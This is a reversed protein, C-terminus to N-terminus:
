HCEPGSPGLGCPFLPYQQRAHLVNVIEIHDANVRYVVVCNPHAVLEWTGPVRGPRFLYPHEALPQVAAEILGPAPAGGRIAARSTVFSRRSIMAHRPAGPTSLM